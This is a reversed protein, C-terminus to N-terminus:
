DSMYNTYTDSIHCITTRDYYLIYMIYIYVYMNHLNLYAFVNCDGFPDKLTEELKDSKNRNTFTPISYMLFQVLCDGASTEPQDPGM